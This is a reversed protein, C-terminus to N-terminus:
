FVTIKRTGVRRLLKNDEQPYLNPVDGSNLINSVAEVFQEKVIQTDCFLFTQIKDENGCKKLCVRLDEKFENWGYGKGVEVQYCTYDICFNALRSLSQRGSGGVGLLLM